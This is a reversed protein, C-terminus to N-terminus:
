RILINIPAGVNDILFEKMSDIVSKGARKKWDDKMDQTMDKYFDEKLFNEVFAEKLVGSFSFIFIKNSKECPKKNYNCAQSSVQSNQTTFDENKINTQLSVSSM